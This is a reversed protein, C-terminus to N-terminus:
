AAKGVAKLQSHGLAGALYSYLKGVDSTTLTTALLDNHDNKLAQEFLEEFQRFYRMAYTRFEGDREYKEKLRQVPIDERMQLFRRTFAAADGKSFEKWVKDAEQPDLVRTLDISLSNLSEIIFKAANLFADRKFRTDSQAVRNASEEAKVTMVDMQTMQQAMNELMQRMGAQVKGASAQWQGVNKALEEGSENMVAVAKDTTTRISQNQMLMQQAAQSVRKAVENGALAMTETQRMLQQSTERLKSSAEEAGQNIQKMNETTRIGQRELEVMSQQSQRALEAAQARLREVATSLSGAQDSTAEKVTQALAEIELRVRAGMDGLQTANENAASVIASAKDNFGNAAAEIQGSAQAVMMMMDQAYIGLKKRVSDVQENAHNTTLSVDDQTSTLSTQIDALQEAAREASTTLSQYNQQLQEAVEKLQATVSAGGDRLQAIRSDFLIGMENMSDFTHFSQGALEQGLRELRSIADSYTKQIKNGTEGLRGGESSYREALESLNIRASSASRQLSAESITLMERANQMASQARLGMQDVAAGAAQINGCLWDLDRASVETLETMTTATAKLKQAMDDIATRGTTLSQQLAENQEDFSAAISATNKAIEASLGSIEQGAEQMTNRAALTVESITEASDMLSYQGSQLVAKMGVTVEGLRTIATRLEDTQESTTLVATNAHEGLLATVESLRVVEDYVAQYSEANSSQGADLLRRQRDLGETMQQLQQITETVTGFLEDRSTKMTSSSKQLQADAIESIKVLNDSQRGIVHELVEAQMMAKETAMRLQQAISASLGIMEQNTAAFSNRAESSADTIKEATNTIAVGTIEMASQMNATVQVLRSILQRLEASREDSAVVTTQVQTNMDSIAVHLQQMESYLKNYNDTTEGTASAMRNREAEMQQITKQAQEASAMVVAYLQARSNEVAATASDLTEASMSSAHRLSDAERTIVHSLVEAQTMAQSAADRLERSMATSMDAMEQSSRSMMESAETSVKEIMAASSGLSMGSKELTVQMSTTVDSLRGILNRLEGARDDSAIVTNEVQSNLSAIADCLENTERYLKNYTATTESTTDAMRYREQEMAQLSQAIQSASQTLTAYLEARSKEIAATAQDVTEASQLSVYQLSDAERTIVHSLVEAQTMAKETAERLERLLLESAETMEQGSRLMMDRAEASVQEVLGASNSLSMESLSMQSQMYQTVESLRTTLNRLEASREDSSLLTSNVQANMMSVADRLKSVEVYMAAQTEATDQNTQAMYHRQSEMDRIIRTVEEATRAVATYLETRADNMKATADRMRGTSIESVERLTDAERGIVYSLVEAQAMAQGTADRLDHTIQEGFMQMRATQQGITDNAERLMGIHQTLTGELERGQTYATEATNQLDMIRQSIGANMTLIREVTRDTSRRAVHALAEITQALDNHFTKLDRTTGSARDVLDDKLTALQDFVSMVSTKITESAGDTMQTAIGNMTELRSGIHQQLESLQSTVQSGSQAFQMDMETLRRTTEDLIAQVMRPTEAAADRLASQVQYLQESITTDLNSVSTLTIGATRDLMAGADVLRRDMMDTYGQIQQVAVGVLQEAMGRFNTVAGALESGISGFAGVTQAMEGMQDALMDHMRLMQIEMTNTAADVVAGQRGFEAAVQGFRTATEDAFNAVQGIRSDLDDATRTMRMNAAHLAAIINNSQRELKDTASQAKTMMDNVSQDIRESGAIAHEEFSVLRGHMQETLRALHSTRNSMAMSAQELHKGTLGAYETMKEMDSRLGDRVSNLTKEVQNAANILENAQRRLGDAVADIREEIKKNPNVLQDIQHLLPAMQEKIDRDRRAYHIGMWMLAIPAAVGAIVSGLHDAPMSVINDWGVIGGLYLVAGTLWAGTATMGIDPLYKQWAPINKPARYNRWRQVDSFPVPMNASASPSNNNSTQQPRQQGPMPRRPMPGQPRPRGMGPAPNTAQPAPKAQPSQVTKPRITAGPPPPTQPAPNRMFPSTSATSSTNPTPTNAPPETLSRSTTKIQDITSQLKEMKSEVEERAASATETKKDDAAKITKQSVLDLDLKEATASEAAMSGGSRAM